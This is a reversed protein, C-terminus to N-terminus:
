KKSKKHENQDAQRVIKIKEDSPYYFDMLGYDSAGKSTEHYFLDLDQEDALTIDAGEYYSSLEYDVDGFKPSANFGKVFQAKRRLRMRRLQELEQKHTNYFELSSAWYSILWIVGAVVFGIAFTLGMIILTYLLLTGM